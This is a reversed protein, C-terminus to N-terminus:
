EVSSWAYQPTETRVKCQATGCPSGGIGDAWVLRSQRMEPNKIRNGWVLRNQSDMKSDRRGAVWVVNDWTVPGDHHSMMIGANWVQRSQGM